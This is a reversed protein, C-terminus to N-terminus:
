CVRVARYTDMFDEEMGTHMTDLGQAFMQVFERLQIMNDGSHDYKKILTQVEKDTPNLGLSRLMFAIEEGDIAGSGDTDLEFFISKCRRLDGDSIHLPKSTVQTATM